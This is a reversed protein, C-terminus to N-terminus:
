ANETFQLGKANLVHITGISANREVFKVAFKQANLCSEFCWPIGTTAINTANFATPVSPTFLSSADRVLTCGPMRSGVIAVYGAGDSTTVRKSNCFMIPTCSPSSCALTTPVYRTFRRLAHITKVVTGSDLIPAFDFLSNFKISIPGWDLQVISIIWKSYPEMKFGISLLYALMRSNIFIDLASSNVLTLLSITVWKLSWCAQDWM